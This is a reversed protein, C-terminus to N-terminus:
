ARGRDELGVDHLELAAMQTGLRALVREVDDGRDAAGLLEALDEVAGALLEELRLDEGREGARGAFPVRLGVAVEAAKSVVEVRRVLRDPQRACPLEFREAGLQRLAGFCAAARGDVREREQAARGRDR